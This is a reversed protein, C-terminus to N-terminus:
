SNRYAGLQIVGYHVSHTAQCIWIEQSPSIERQKGIGAGCHELLARGDKDGLSQLQYTDRLYYASFYDCGVEENLILDQTTVVQM